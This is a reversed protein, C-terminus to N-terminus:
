MRGNIFIDGVEGEGAVKPCMGLSPFWHWWVTVCACITTEGARVANALITSATGKIWGCSVCYLLMLFCKAQIFQSAFHGIGPKHDLRFAISKCYIYLRLIFANQTSVCDSYVFFYTTYVCVFCLQMAYLTGPIHYNHICADTVKEKKTLVLKAKQRDTQDM